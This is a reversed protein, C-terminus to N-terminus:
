SANERSAQEDPPDSVHVRGDLPNNSTQRTRTARRLMWGPVAAPQEMMLAALFLQVRRSRHRRYLELPHDSELPRALWRRWRAVRLQDLVAAPM